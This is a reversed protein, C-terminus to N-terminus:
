QIVDNSGAPRTGQHPEPEAARHTQDLDTIPDSADPGGRSVIIPDL